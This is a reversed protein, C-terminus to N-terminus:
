HGSSPSPRHNGTQLLGGSNDTQTGDQQRRQLNQQFTKGLSVAHPLRIQDWKVTKDTGARHLTITEPDDLDKNTTPTPPQGQQSPTESSDQSM